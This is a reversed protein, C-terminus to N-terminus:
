RAGYDGRRGQYVALGQPRFWKMTPLDRPNTPLDEISEPLLINPDTYLGGSGIWEEVSRIPSHKGLFPPREQASFAFNHQFVSKSFGVEGWPVDLMDRGTIFLNDRYVVGPIDGVSAVAFHSNVITNREILAGEMNAMQEPIYLTIGSQFNKVGDEYSINNRLINNRWPDADDFQCFLYGTGVNGYSLNNEIISDVVGGDLDFGGGDGGPSQNRHSICNRITVRSADWAWIGVPGNGDRPMDWGNQSAECFEILCDDVGGVVIGNGSHNTLNKPDGPNNIARCDRITINRSRADGGAVSIGAFGNERAEVHDLTTDTCGVIDVGSGLFGTVLVNRVEANQVGILAIGSGDNAKRGAGSIELNELTIGQTSQIRIGDGEQGDIRTRGEGYSSISIDRVGDLILPGVLTQNARLLLKEGPQLSGAQALTKWATEPTTGAAQDDGNTPDVYYSTGPTAM